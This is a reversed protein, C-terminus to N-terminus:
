IPPKCRTWGPSAASATWATRASSPCLASRMATKWSPPPSPRCLRASFRKGIAWSTKLVNGDSHDEPDANFMGIDVYKQIYDMTGEWAGAATTKGSLFDREWNHEEMLTKNYYIGYMVNNVPLAYIGGDIAVQDLLATSLGDVFDYNALDVLREKALDEDIIQSSIFIDPIDDARMQVWSYGTRNAGAYATIELEIEPYTRSALELFSDFGNWRTWTLASGGSSQADPPKGTDKSTCASLLLILSVSLALLRRPLNKSM